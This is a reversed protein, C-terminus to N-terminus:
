QLTALACVTTIGCITLICAYLRITRSNLIREISPISPAMPGVIADKTWSRVCDGRFWLAVTHYPSDSLAFKSPTQSNQVRGFIAELTAARTMGLVCCCTTATLVVIGYWLGFAIAHATDNDGLKSSADFLAYGYAGLYFVVPAGIQIGYSSQHDLLLHLDRQADEVKADCLGAIVKDVLDDGPQKRVDVRPLFTGILTLAITYAAQRRNFRGRAGKLVEKEIEKLIMWDKLSEDIAGVMMLGALGFVAIIWSIIDLIMLGFAAVLWLVSLFINKDFLREGRPMRYNRPITLVFVLAPLLFGVLPGVWQSLQSVQSMQWGPWRALCEPLPVTVPLAPDNPFLAYQSACRSSTDNALSQNLAVSENRIAWCAQDFDVHNNVAACVTLYTFLILSTLYRM